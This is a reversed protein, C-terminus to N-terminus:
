EKTAGKKAEFASLLILGVIASCAVLLPVFAGEQSMLGGAALLLIFLLAATSAWMFLDAKNEVPKTVPNKM